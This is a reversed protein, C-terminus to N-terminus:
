NTFFLSKVNYGKLNPDAAPDLYLRLENNKNTLVRLQTEFLYKKESGQTTRVRIITALWNKGLKIYYKPFFRYVKRLVGEAYFNIMM